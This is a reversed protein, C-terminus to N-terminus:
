TIDHSELPYGKEKYLRYRQRAMKTATENQDVIESVREFRGLFEPVSDTMNILIDNISTTCEPYHNIIVPCDSIEEGNYIEHPIFSGQRWTWLMDDIMNAQQNDETHLLIQHGKNYIKDVLRCIFVMRENPSNSKLIYFSIRTLPILDMKPWYRNSAM